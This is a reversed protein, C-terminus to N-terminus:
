MPLKVSFAKYIMKQEKTLPFLIRQNNIYQVRLKALTMLMKKITLNKYLGQDLMVTHIYSMLILAVFGIFLKNQMSDDRHVRLRGLDLQTKLRWFGKEVVDKQRYIRMAQKANVVDNSLIVLWGATELKQAVIEERINITYGTQTHESKRINLYKKSEEDTLSTKPDAEAQEKLVTVYAYLEERIRYGKIADYYVHVYLQHEKGWARIKTVARLSQEGVVLTNQLCDIDKRESAVLKKAFKSTFPVAIVFRTPEARNLMANINRTSFFGKDMVVLTSKGASIADMKSLTTELTSVDKLSGSYPVQYIPLHSTEGVLMCINIQPLQENDRNYGWEVDQICTSYSSTSTIDLALYEQEARLGCWAQYFAEREEHTITQMLDSIRQSSLSAIDPHATKSLWEECYLFAEGSAVLYCALMFIEQYANPLASQLATLLGINQAINDFLYQAGFELVSSQRIEKVTFAKSPVGQEIHVGSAAMRAVYEAKYIPQSTVQDIKGILTRKNRPKGNENRYSVSEYLYVNNGVVQRVISSM